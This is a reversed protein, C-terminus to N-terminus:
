RGITGGAPDRSGPEAGRTRRKRRNVVIRRAALVVAPAFLALAGPIRGPAGHVPDAVMACGSENSSVWAAVTQVATFDLDTNGSALGSTWFVMAKNGPFGLAAQTYDNDIGTTPYDDRAFGTASTVIDASSAATNFKFAIFTAGATNDLPYGTMFVRGSASEYFAQPRFLRYDPLMITEGPPVPLFLNVNALNDFGPMGVKRANDPNLQVYSLDGTVEDGAVIMVQSRNVVLMSPFTFRAPYRMMVKTPAILMNDVGNTQDIMAYFVPGSIAGAAGAGTWAIHARNLDDLQLSPLPRLGLSAPYAVTVAVPATATANDIGVRAFSVQFPEPAAIASRTAYAVRATSDSTLLAWSVDQITGAPLGQVQKVSKQVITNGALIIRAIYLRYATDATSVPKAQFLIVAETASRALIKPHRADAYTDNGIDSNDVTTPPILIVTSDRQLLDNTFDAGGNVKAYYVRFGTGTTDGLFAVHTDTGYMGVSPQDFRGTNTDNLPFVKEARAATAALATAALVCAALLRHARKM